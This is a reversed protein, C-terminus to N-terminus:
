DLDVHRVTLPLGTATVAERRLQDTATAALRHGVQLNFDAAPYHHWPLERSPLLAEIPPSMVAASWAERGVRRWGTVSPLRAPFDAKTVGSYASRSARWCHRIIRSRCPAPRQWCGRQSRHAASPWRALLTDAMVAHATTSQPCGTVVRAAARMQGPSAPTLATHCAAVSCCRTGPRRPRLRERRGAPTAGGTGLATWDDQAAPRDAPASEPASQPLPARLAAAPGSYIGVLKLQDGGRGQRHLQRPRLVM